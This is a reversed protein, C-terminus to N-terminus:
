RTASEARTWCMREMSRCIFSRGSAASWIKLTSHGPSGTGSLTVGTASRRFSAPRLIRSHLHEAARAPASAASRM